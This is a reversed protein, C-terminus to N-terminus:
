TNADNTRSPGPLASPAATATPSVPTAADPDTVPPLVYPHCRLRTAPTAATPALSTLLFFPRLAPGSAFSPLSYGSGSRGPTRHPLGRTATQVVSGPGQTPLHRCRSTNRRRSMSAM